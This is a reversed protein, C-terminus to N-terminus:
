GRILYDGCRGNLAPLLEHVLVAGGAMCHTEFPRTRMSGSWREPCLMLAVINAIERLSKGFPDDKRM